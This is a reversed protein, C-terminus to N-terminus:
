TSLPILGFQRLHHLAHKHLLHVNEEFGLDGFFPNRIVLGPEKEFAEFFYILELQLVGIAGQVTKFRLPPPEDDMLPNRTNERFPKESLMFERIRSLHEPATVLKEFKLRGNANRVADLAFHEVMRQFNMKGWRAPTSPDMQQLYPILKTRLFNEKELSM